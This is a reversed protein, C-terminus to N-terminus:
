YYMSKPLFVVQIVNSEPTVVVPTIVDRCLSGPVSTRRTDSNSALLDRVSIQETSTRRSNSYIM